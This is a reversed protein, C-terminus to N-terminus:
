KLQVVQCLEIQSSTANWITSNAIMSKDISYGLSLIEFTATKLALVPETYNVTIDTVNSVCDKM